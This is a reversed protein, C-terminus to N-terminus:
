TNNRVLFGAKDRFKPRLDHLGKVDLDPHSSLVVILSVALYLATSVGQLVCHPIENVFSM